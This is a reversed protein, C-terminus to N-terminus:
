VGWSKRGFLRGDSSRLVKTRKSPEARIRKPPGRKARKQIHPNIFRPQKGRKTHVMRLHSSPRVM